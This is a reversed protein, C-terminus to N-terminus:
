LKSKSSTSGCTLFADLYRIEEDDRGEEVVRDIAGDDWAFGHWLLVGVDRATEITELVKANRELEPIEALLKRWFMTRLYESRDHYTWGKQTMTGLLEELGYLCTGFPLVEAEAWDVLGTLQGTMPDVIINSPVIDGHNLVWPLNDLRHIRRLALRARSRFRQPLKQSLQNLRSGISSGIKGKPPLDARYSWSRALFLAFDEVLRVHKKWAQGDTLDAETDRYDKYSVGQLKEMTYILLGSPKIEGAFATRPAYSHFVKKAADTVIMSLQYKKPRFQVIQRDGALVTYSCYGQTLAPMVKAELFLSKAAANCKVRDEETLGHTSFFTGIGRALSVNAM